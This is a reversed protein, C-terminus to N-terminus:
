VSRVGRWADGLLDSLSVHQKVIGMMAKPPKRPISGDVKFMFKALENIMQPYVAPMREMGIVKPYGACAKMTPILVKDLERMYVPGKDTEESLVANAAAIGSLMALDMGRLITGTNIVFVAADGIVLLGERYLKTPVSGNWGGEPVLHAGYEVSTGDGLLKQISPHMKFEQYIDRISMKHDSLKEPGFVMGLSVSTKNTYLFGGGTLGDSCGLIVRAAGMGDSVQFREEITKAPLEIIEKVGVGIIDPTLEPRLGARRAIFSNVGDAAIVMDAYMADGGAMVGAVRGDEILLDDVRIGAAIMVGEEEAKGAFWEDFGARLVTYSDEPRPNSGAEFDELDITLASDKGLVMVQERAVKRELYEEAEGRLEPDLLDLVYTYFRGGIVNKSGATNGREIVLVSRGEKALRYACAIGGPGAGVIIADFKEDDMKNM